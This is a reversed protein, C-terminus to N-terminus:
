CVRTILPSILPLACMLNSHLLNVAAILQRFFYRALPEELARQAKVDLGPRVAANALRRFLNGGRHMELVVAAVHMDIAGAKTAISGSQVVDLVRAVYVHAPLAMHRRALDVERQLAAPYSAQVKLLKFFVEQGDAAPTEGPAVRRVSALFGAGFTGGVRLDALITYRVDGRSGPVSYGVLPSM